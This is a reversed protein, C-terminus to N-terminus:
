IYHASDGIQEPRADEPGLFRELDTLGNMFENKWLNINPTNGSEGREVRQYTRWLAYPVLVTLHFQEDLGDPEDEDSVMDAPKRFYHVTLDEAKAPAYFLTKGRVCCAEISGVELKPYREVFDIYSDIRRLEEGNAGIVAILGRQFNDPLAISQGDVAATVTGTAMLDPLPAIPPLPHPRAGGGAIIKMGQNLFGLVMTASIAPTLSTEMVETTLAAADM